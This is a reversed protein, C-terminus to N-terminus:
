KKVVVKKVIEKGDQNASIRLHYVGDNLKALDIVENGISLNGQLVVRGMADIMVYAENTLNHQVNLVESAPNPYVSVQTVIAPEEVSLVPAARQWIVDDVLDAIPDYTYELLIFKSTANNTWYNYSHSEETTEDLPIPFGFTFGIITTTTVENVYQRLTNFTGFPTTLAGWADMESTKVVSIVVRISDFTGSGDPFTLSANYNSNYTSGFTAPFQIIRDYPNLTVPSPSGSGIFDAYVGLIDVADNNKRIFTNFGNQVDVSAMTATPFHQFGDAMGAGVFGFVESDDNNLLTGFNWTQNAGAPSHAIGPNFDYAREIYEFPGLIDASNITIQSTAATAMLMGSVFLLQKKM